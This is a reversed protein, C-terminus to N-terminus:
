LDLQRDTGPRDPFSIGAATWREDPTDFLSSRAMRNLRRDEELTIVALKWRKQILPDLEAESLRNQEWLELVLRALARRPTGHEVRLQANPDRAHLALAAVSWQSPDVQRVHHPTASAGTLLKAYVDVLHELIRIGLNETVGVARLERYHRCAVSIQRVTIRNVSM